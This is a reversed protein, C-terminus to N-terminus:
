YYHGNLEVGVGFSSKWSYINSFFSNPYFSGMFDSTFLMHIGAADKVYLNFCSAITLVIMCILM